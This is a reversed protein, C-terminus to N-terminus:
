DYSHEIQNLEVYISKLQSYHSLATIGNERGLGSSKYGGFPMTVPTVNYNNIWCVGAQLQKAVRHARKINNTFVGAALGYPTNNARSIVEEEDDFSLVAMVPGFIEDRVISMNDQCQSFITPQLFNGNEFPKTTYRQGGYALEAGSNKGQTIFDTVKNLHNESILSGIQTKKDFPDGIILKEVRRILKELFQEQKKHHVFVRTGNSCVEGQTYFNGLMSGIVAEDIDADDFIILPSKGGLELTVPTLTEAMQRLIKKGTIVSGTFSVKAIHPQRLLKEAIVGDGLIM